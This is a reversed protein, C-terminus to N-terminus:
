KLISNWAAIYEMAVKKYSHVAECYKRSALGMKSIKTKHDLINEFQQYLKKEDPVTCILPSSNLGLAQITEERAGTMVVKGMAMSICANIGYGYRRCQDVVVNTRRLLKVYKNFPMHGDIIVDVDNPFREKLKLLAQRIYKTGCKLEDNIGHFFVIKSSVINEKYTIEDTNVPEPICKYLKPNNYYGIAYEYLGPIIIDVNKVINRDYYTNLKGRLSSKDYRKLLGFGEDYISYELKNEWYARSTAEDGGVACLSIMGNHKKIYRIAEISLFSPLTTTSILQVVDYGKFNKYNRLFDFGCSIKNNGQFLFGDQGEIKKWGDGNALLFVDTMGNAILGEKLYKHFSSFEGLLLIKM